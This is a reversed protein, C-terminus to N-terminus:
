WHDKMMFFIVIFCGATFYDAFGISHIAKELEPLEGKFCPDGTLKIIGYGIWPSILRGVIFFTGVVVAINAIVKKISNM